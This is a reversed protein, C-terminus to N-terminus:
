VQLSVSTAFNVFIFKKNPQVPGRFCLAKIIDYIGCKKACTNYEGDTAAAISSTKRSLQGSYRCSNVVKLCRHAFM